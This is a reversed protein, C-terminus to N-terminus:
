SITGIFIKAVKYLNQVSTGDEAEEGIPITERVGEAFSISKMSFGHRDLEGSMKGILERGASLDNKNESTIFGTLEDGRLKFTAHLKGYEESEMRIQVTGSEPHTETESENRASRQITVNLTTVGKETILPIEYMERKRLERFFSINRSMMRFTQIEDFSVAKKMGERIEETKSEEIELYAKELEEKNDFAEKVKDSEEKKWKAKKNTSNNELYAKAMTINVISDPMKLRELFHEAEKATGKLTRIEEARMKNYANKENEEGGCKELLTDLPMTKAEDGYEALVSPSLERNLDSVISQGFAATIQDSISDSKKVAEELGGFEDDVSVDINGKNETRVASLLSNLTIERGQKVLSGIVSGDSKEIKDLLRYIGIVSKREKESLTGKKDLKWLFKRFTEDEPLQNVSMKAATEALEEMPMELPNIHEKVMSTVAAPTMNRILHNVKSDYEKIDAINERTIEMQNYALIRVARENNATPPLELDELMSDIERFAKQISDGLDKRVETGATQYVKELDPYSQKASSCKEAFEPLTQTMGKELTSALVASPATRIQELVSFTDRVREINENTVPTDTEHLMNEYMRNEQERLGEVIDQLHKTDITIGKGQLERAADITLKLRIEERQRKATIYGAESPYQRHLEKDSVQRVKDALVAAENRSILTMDAKEAYGGDYIHDIIRDVIQDTELGQLETISEYRRINEATVPLYSDFLVKATEFNKDNKPIGEKEFIAEIQPKIQEFNKPAESWRAEKIYSSQKINEPTIPMENEILENRGGASLSRVSLAMEAANRLHESMKESDPIEAEDLRNKLGGVMPLSSDSYINIVREKATGKVASMLVSREMQKRQKRTKAVRREVSEERAARDRKIRKIEQEFNSSSQEEFLLGEMELAQFDEATIHFFSAKGNTQKPDEEPLKEKTDEGKKNYFGTREMEKHVTGDRTIDFARSQIRGDKAAHVSMHSEAANDSDNLDVSIKAIDTVDM